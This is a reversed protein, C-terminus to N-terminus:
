LELIEKLKGYAAFQIASGPIARFINIPLGRFLGSVGEKKWISSLCHWSNQYLKEKGAMGNSQMQRRITDGPYTITQAIIGSLSGTILGQLIIDNSLINSKNLYKKGESYFTMQMGVYFPGSLLTPGLGKYYGRLGEEVITRKLCDFVGNYKVGMGPGLALRTRVVELPYTIFTTCFGSSTGALMKQWITLTSTKSSKNYTKAIALKFQDNMTFKCAYVPSARLVNAFNGKWFARIGEEKLILKGTQFFNKYKRNKGIGETKMGQLQYLIKIRELPAIITKTFAGAGAGCLVQKLFLNEVLEAKPM